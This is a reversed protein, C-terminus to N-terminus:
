VLVQTATGLERNVTPVTVLTMIVSRTSRLSGAKQAKVYAKFMTQMFTMSKDGGIKKHSKKSEAPKDAAAKLPKGNSDYRCCDL